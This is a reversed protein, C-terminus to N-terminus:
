KAIPYFTYLIRNKFFYNVFAHIAEMQLQKACKGMLVLSRIVVMVQNFYIKILKNKIRKSFLFANKVQVPLLLLWICHILMSVEVYRIHIILARHPAFQIKIVTCEM